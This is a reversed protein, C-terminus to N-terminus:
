RKGKLMPVVSNPTFSVGIEGEAVAWTVANQSRRKSTGCSADNPAPPVKPYFYVDGM